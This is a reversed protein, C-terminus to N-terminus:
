RLEEALSHHGNVDADIMCAIFYKVISTHGNRAAMMLTTDDLRRYDMNMTAFYKIMCGDTEWSTLGFLLDDTFACSKVAIM